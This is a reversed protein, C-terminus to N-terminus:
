ILFVNDDYCYDEDDFEVMDQDDENKDCDQQMNNCDQYACADSCKLGADICSCYSYECKRKCDCALM